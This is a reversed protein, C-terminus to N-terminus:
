YDLDRVSRSISRHETLPQFYIVVEGFFVVLARSNENIGLLFRGYYVRPIPFSKTVDGRLGAMIEFNGLSITPPSSEPYVSSM